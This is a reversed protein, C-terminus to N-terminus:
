QERERERQKLSLSLSLSLIFSHSDLCGVVGVRGECRGGLFGRGACGWGAVLWGVGGLPLGLGDLFNVSGGGLHHRSRFGGAVSAGSLSKIARSILEYSNDTKHHRQHLLRTSEVSNLYFSM